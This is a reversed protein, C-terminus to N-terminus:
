YNYATFIKPLGLMKAYQIALWGMVSIYAVLFCVRKFCIFNTAHAVMRSICAQRFLSKMQQLITIFGFSILSTSFGAVVGALLEWTWYKARVNSNVFWSHGIKFLISCRRITEIKSPNTPQCGFLGDRYLSVKSIGSTYWCDYTENVKFKDKALWAAGFNPRCDLPLAEDPAEALVIRTQDLSHDKYEVEFISAWYYDFRCRFKTAQFPYLVNKAKYNLMGVECVKSSRIDVGTSVIKCQSPVSVPSSISSEGFYVVVLGILSSLVFIALIPFLLALIFRLILYRFGKKAEESIEQPDMLRLFTTNTM